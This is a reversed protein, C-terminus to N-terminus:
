SISKSSYSHKSCVRGAFSIGLACLVLIGAVDFTLRMGATISDSGAGSIDRSGSAFTFVARTVSAGTANGLALSRHWDSASRGVVDQIVGIGAIGFGVILELFQHAGASIAISSLVLGLPYVIAGLIIAKKDGFREAFAGFV